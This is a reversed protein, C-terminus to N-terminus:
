SSPRCPARRPGCARGLPVVGAPAAGPRPRRVARGAIVAGARAAPARYTPPAGDARRRGPPASSPSSASRPPTPWPWRRPPTTSPWPSSCPAPRARRRERGRDVASSSCRRPRRGVTYADDGTGYTALSTSGSATRQHGAGIRGREVTFTSSGAAPRPARRRGGRQGPGARGARAAALSPPASWSRPTTSPGPGCRRRCSSWPGADLDAPRRAPHRRGPRPRRGRLLAGPQRGATTAASFLGVGAAAVLLGGVVARSGPCAGGAAARHPAPRRGRRRRRRRRQRRSLRQRSAGSGRTAM